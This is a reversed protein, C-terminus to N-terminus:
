PMAVAVVAAAFAAAAAASSSHVITTTAVSPGNHGKFATPYDTNGGLGM